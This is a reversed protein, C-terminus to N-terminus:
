WNWIHDLRMQDTLIAASALSTKSEVNDKKWDPCDKQVIRVAESAQKWKVAAAASNSIERSNWWKLVKVHVLKGM